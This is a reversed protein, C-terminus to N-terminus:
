RCRFKLIEGDDKEDVLLAGGGGGLGRERLEHGEATAV